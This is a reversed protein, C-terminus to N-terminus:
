DGADLLVPLRHDTVGVSVAVFILTLWELGRTKSLPVAKATGCICGQIFLAEAGSTRWKCERVAIEVVRVQM